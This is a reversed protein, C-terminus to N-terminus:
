DMFKLGFIDVLGRTSHIDSLKRRYIQRLETRIDFLIDRIQEKKEELENYQKYYEDESLKFSPHKISKEFDVTVWGNSYYKGDLDIEPEIGSDNYKKVLDVVVQKFKSIEDENDAKIIRVFKM